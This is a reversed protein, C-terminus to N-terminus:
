GYGGWGSACVRLCACVEFFIIHKQLEFIQESERKWRLAAKFGPSTRDDGIVTHTHPTVALWAARRVREGKEGAAYEFLTCSSFDFICAFSPMNETSM